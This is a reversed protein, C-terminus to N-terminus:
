QPDVEIRAVNKVKRKSNSDGFVILTFTGDDDSVLYVKGAELLEEGSIEASYEDQSTIRLDDVEAPDIGVSTLVDALLSGKADINVREGKGNVLEGKVPIRAIDSKGLFWKQDKQIIEVKGQEVIRDGTLHLVALLAVAVALILILLLIIRKRM